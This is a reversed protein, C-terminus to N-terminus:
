WCARSCLAWSIDGNKALSDTWDLFYCRKDTPTLNKWYEEGNFEIMEARFQKRLQAQTTYSYKAM